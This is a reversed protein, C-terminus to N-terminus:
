FRKNILINSDVQAVSVDITQDINIKFTIEIDLTNRKAPILGKIEIEGIKNNYICKENEGQYVEITLDVENDETNNFVLMQEFPLKSNRPILEIFDGNGDKVGLPHVNIYNIEIKKKNNIRKTLYAGYIAAGKSVALDPDIDGYTKGHGLIDNLLEDIITMKSSGGIKIIKDIDSPRFKSIELVENLIKTIKKMYKGLCNKLEAVTLECELFEGPPVDIVQIYAVDDFSLKEKAAIIQEMLKNKCLSQTKEPYSSIDIKEKAVIYDFIKKDFDLGGLRDDGNSAITNFIISDKNCKLNFITVDFTGGGLDFVLINEDRNINNDLYLAYSFAAAIPEQIIGITKLKAMQAAKLTNSIQNARFYYPVTIVTGEAKFANNPFMSEVNSYISKLIETSIEVPNFTKGGLHIDINKDDMLRKAGICVNEPYFLGKDKAPKGVTFKGKEYYVVSPISYEGKPCFVESKEGDWRSISSFTTGLDIGIVPHLIGDYIM